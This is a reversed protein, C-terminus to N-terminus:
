AIADVFAEVKTSQEDSPAVLRHESGDDEIFTMQRRAWGESDIYVADEDDWVHVHERTVPAVASDTLEAVAGNEVM